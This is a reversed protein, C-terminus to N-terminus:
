QGSSFILFTLLKKAYQKKEDEQTWKGDDIASAIAKIGHGGDKKKKKGGVFTM